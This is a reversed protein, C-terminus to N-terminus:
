RVDEGWGAALMQVVMRRVDEDPETSARERLLVVTGPDERWGVALAQVAVQRVAGNKDTSARERLWPLTGPDERWGVALAQVAAHRVAGNKDTSARERLLVVTGPDERWGVALAEVAVRRVPWYPSFTAQTQLQERFHRSDFLMAAGIRASFSVVQAPNEWSAAFFQGRLLYWDQYRNRGVWQSGLALFVPLVTQEIAGALSSDYGDAREHATELLSIVTDTIALSQASLVGPKRVEGICRVALLAHRPLDDARLFWLPDTALLHDIIQGVFREPIMGAILLLVEQWAPDPWRRGFVDTILQDETLERANFREVIDAAALYELFARHVFGYVGAGFRSLIFNRERFQELMAKAAPKARDLPLAYRERLYSDFEAILDPGPIHNGALGAPGDQMRRAVLRLLELKDDHDLYPMGQDVRTDRLYKSPEWREVLVEVAHEYVKRRERPLERRRGIISLITLLMPNGALERVAASDGIAALLRERLRAAEPSNDPCALQYWRTVFAELQEQDLDQLMCHSFGAADLIARRYGIVRSTVVIRAQPYRGAFGTIQHTVTERLQPDFLEDLGDFIVVARGDQRLFTDLLPGPLGLGETTHLHDILDLFTRDRWRADAYTRLEVLVPLWGDLAALPGTVPGAALTLALYRALTSKGAGPDGLLVLRRQGPEALVQLVSRAPREQYAQRFRALTEPDVGDPLEGRGLEGAEVLRRLLEKPLEMPPPDARVAQAIFVERLGVPPYEDPETLPTLAELDVRRYREQLRTEYHRRAAAFAPDADAGTAASGPYEAAYRARWMDLDALEPALHLPPRRKLAHRACASVFAEVTEPEPKGKGNLLNRFTQRSGPHGSERAHKQLV